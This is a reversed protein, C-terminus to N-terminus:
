AMLRLLWSAGTVAGGEELDICEDLQSQVYGEFLAKHQPYQASLQAARMQIMQNNWDNVEKLPEDQSPVMTVLELGQRNFIEEWETQTPYEYNQYNVQQQEGTLYGDELLIYGGPRITRKLKEVTEEPGGLVDGVAGFIVLDYNQERTVAQNIDGAEFCCNGSLSLQGAKKRAYDIFEPIIDIGKVSIGLSEALKVSVAGKGCGLDLVKMERPAAIHKKILELFVEPDSGLEWLDQLLYPLFPILETTEATLSGALKEQVALDMLPEDPSHGGNSLENNKTMKVGIQAWLMRVILTLIEIKSVDNPEELEYYIM